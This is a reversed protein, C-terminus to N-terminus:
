RQKNNKSNGHARMHDLITKQRQQTRHLRISSKMNFKLHKLYYELLVTWDIKIM